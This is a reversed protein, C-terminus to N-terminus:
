LFYTAWEAVDYMKEMDNELVAEEWDKEVMTQLEVVLEISVDCDRKVRQGIRSELGITFMTYFETDTPKISVISWKKDACLWLCHCRM